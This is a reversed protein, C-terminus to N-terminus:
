GAMLWIGSLTIGAGLAGQVRPWSAVARALGIGALHLATTAVLFGSLYAFANGTAETAHAHGHATAFAAIIVLSSTTIWGGQGRRSVFTLLGLAVVSAAIVTEVLPFDTGAWAAVAGATMASLFVAAGLWFRTPLVLGSWLGVALMALLHDAGLVPHVLGHLFGSADGHGTHALAPSALMAFLAAPLARNM